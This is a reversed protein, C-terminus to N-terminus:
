ENIENIKAALANEVDENAQNVAEQVKDKLKFKEDETIGGEKFEAEIKKNAEDRAHRIKIRTEESKQKVLKELERRREDTLEPLNIHIVNGNVNANLGSGSEDVAKAVANVANQDWVAITIERPPTVTISGLQKLPIKQGYVEAKINEVLGPHPRNTRIARLEQKFSSAIRDLKERM